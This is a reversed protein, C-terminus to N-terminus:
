KFVLENQVHDIAPEFSLLQAALEAARESEVTGRLIATRGSITLKVSDGAVGYVRDLMRQNAAIETPAVLTDPEPFGIELRPYYLGRGRQPPLPRNLEPAASREIRLGQTAPPVRGVGIAQTSGVFGTQSRRDSGVFESRARNGRVFRESGDLMGAATGVSTGGGTAGLRGGQNLPSNIPKGVSRNGFLQAHVPTALCGFLLMGCCLGLPVRLRCFM